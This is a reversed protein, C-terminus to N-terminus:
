ASVSSFSLLLDEMKFEKLPCGQSFCQPRGTEESFGACWYFHLSKENLRFM